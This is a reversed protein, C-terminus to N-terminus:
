PFCLEIKCKDFKITFDLRLSSKQEENLADRLQPNSTVIETHSAAEMFSRERAESVSNNIVETITDATREEDRTRGLGLTWSYPPSWSEM